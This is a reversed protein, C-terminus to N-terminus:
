DAAQARKANDRVGGAVREAGDPGAEREGTHIDEDVDVREGRGAPERGVLKLREANQEILREIRDVRGGESRRGVDVAVTM